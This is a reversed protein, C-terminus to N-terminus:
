PQEWSIEYSCDYKGLDPLLCNFLARRNLIKKIEEKRSKHVYDFEYNKLYMAKTFFCTKSINDFLAESGNILDSVIIDVQEGKLITMKFAAAMM